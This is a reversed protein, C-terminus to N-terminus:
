MGPAPVPSHTDDAARMRKGPQQDREDDSVITQVALAPMTTSLGLSGVCAQLTGQLAVRLREEDQDVLEESSVEEAKPASAGQEKGVPANLRAIDQRATAIDERAKAVLDQLGAQHRRYDELAAEWVKLSETLHTLWAARHKKKAELTEALQIQAKDLATTASHLSRVASKAQTQEHKEVMARINEPMTARDPYDQQIAVIWDAHQQAGVAQTPATSPATTPLAPSAEWKPWPAAASPARVAQSKQEQQKQAQTKGKGTADKGGKNKAEKSKRGRSKRPGHASPSKGGTASRSSRSSQWDAYSDEEWDEEWKPWGTYTWAKQAKPTNSHPIGDQWAGGCRDCFAAKRGNIKQCGGCKWAGQWDM